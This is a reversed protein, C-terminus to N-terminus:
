PHAQTHGDQIRLLMDQRPAPANLWWEFSLAGQEMLMLTGDWATIGANGAEKLFATERGYVLDIAVLGKEGRSWDIPLSDSSLGASTCNVLVGIGTLLPEGLAKLSLGAEESFSEWKGPTRNWCVVQRGEEVLRAAIAKGSGGAGLVLVTGTSGPAVRHLMKMFGPEDTSISEGTSLRLTNAGWRPHAGIDQGVPGGRRKSWTLAEEKLGVTVNVGQYGLQALHDLAAEVENGLVQIARYTLNLGCSRYAAQHMAPSLSHGVQAGIVAYDGPEAKTWHAWPTM